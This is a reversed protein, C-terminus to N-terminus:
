LPPGESPRPVFFEAETVRLLGDGSPHPDHAMEGGCYVVSHQHGRPGPGSALWFGGEIRALFLTEFPGPEDPKEFGDGRLDVKVLSFGRGHLWAQFDMYWSSPSDAYFSPVDGLEIELISAIAAAFCNGQPEGFKTQHIPRM